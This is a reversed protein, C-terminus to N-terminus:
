KIKIFYIIKLIFLLKKNEGIYCTYNNRGLRINKAMKLIIYKILILYNLYM